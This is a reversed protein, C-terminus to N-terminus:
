LKAKCILRIELEALAIRSDAPQAFIIDIWGRFRGDFPLRIGDLDFDAKRAGQHTILTEHFTEHGDPSEVNFRLYTVLPRSPEAVLELRLVQGPKFRAALEPPVAAVLSLYSGNFAECDLTPRGDPGTAHGIGGADGDHYLDVGHCLRTGSALSEPEAGVNSGLAFAAAGPRANAGSAHWARAVGGHGAGNTARSPRAAWFQM